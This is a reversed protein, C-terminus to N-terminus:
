STECTGSRGDCSVQRGIVRGKRRIEPLGEVFALRAVISPALNRKRAEDLLMLYQDDNLSILVKHKLREKGTVRPWM